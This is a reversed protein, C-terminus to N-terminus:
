VRSAPTLPLPSFLCSIRDCLLTKCSQWKGCHCPLHSLGLGWRHTQGQGLVCYMAETLPSLPERHVQPCSLGGSLTPHSTPCSSTTLSPCVGLAPLWPCLQTHCLTLLLHQSCPKFHLRVHDRQNDGDKVSGEMGCLRLGGWGYLHPQGAGM